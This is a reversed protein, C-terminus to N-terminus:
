FCPIALSDTKRLHSFPTRKISSLYSRIDLVIQEIDLSHFCRVTKCTKAMKNICTINRCPSEAIYVYSPADQNAPFFGPLNSDYGYICASSAGFISFIATKNRFKYNKSRAFKRAAGIHLPGTDATIFVDSFDILAAYCDLPMSPPIILIKNRESPPLFNLLEVEISKATHGAGLLISFPLKALQRILSGQLELPILSFRSAADPNYLIL